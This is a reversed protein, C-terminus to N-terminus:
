ENETSRPDAGLPTLENGTRTAIGQQVLWAALEEIGGIVYHEDCATVLEQFLEQGPRQRGTASKLEVWVAIPMPALAFARFRRYYRRDAIGITQKTKGPHSFRIIEFGLKMMMVDCEHEIQKELRRTDAAPIEVSKGYRRDAAREAADLSVGHQACIASIFAPRDM